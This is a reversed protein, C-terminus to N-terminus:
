SSLEKPALPFVLLFRAGRADRLPSEIALKGGFEELRRVVIALGLGTGRPKTTFFPQVIKEWLEPAIGPGDDEVGLTCSKDGCQFALSVRGSRVVAEMANLVVNSVIDNAAEAPCAVECSGPHPSVEL